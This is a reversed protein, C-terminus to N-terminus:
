FAKQRYLASLLVKAATPIGFTPPIAPKMGAADPEAAAFAQVDRRMWAMITLVTAQKAAEPVTLFGWAGTIDLYAFGFDSYVDSSFSLQTSLRITKAVGFRDVDLVYGGAGESVATPDSTEPHLSMSTVSRLDAGCDGAPQNTLPRALSVLVAGSVLRKANVRFRRTAAVVPPALERDVEDIVRQSAPTILVNILADDGTDGTEKELEARVDDLTCLDIAM